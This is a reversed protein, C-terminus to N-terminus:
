KAFAAGIPEDIGSTTDATPKGGAPFAWTDATSSADGCYEYDGGGVSTGKTNLAVQVADCVSGGDYNELTTTGVVTGTSGSITMAYGCSAETDGCLQDWAVVESKKAYYTVAGPFYITAGSITVTSCSTGGAACESLIYDDSENKGSTFIDGKSDFGDFYYYYQASNSLETPTGTANKYLLVQGAGEFGFIDTVALDGSKDVACGVPYGVSDTLSGIEKGATSYELIQETGTNTIWVGKKSTCMGQPESFGSLTMVSTLKPLSYVNVTDYADDSVWLTGKAKKKKDPSFWSPNRDPRVLGIPHVATLTSAMHGRAM